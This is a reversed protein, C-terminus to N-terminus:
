TGFIGTTSSPDFARAGLGGLVGAVFADAAASDSARVHFAFSRLPSENPVNVEIDAGPVVVHGWEPDAFDADPAHDTVVRLVDAHSFPLPGAEFDDPIDAVTRVNPPIDQVFIDRSMAMVSQRIRRTWTHPRAASM